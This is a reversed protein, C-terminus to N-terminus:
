IYYRVVDLAKAGKDSAIAVLLPSWNDMKLKPQGKYLTHEEELGRLLVVSQGLKYYNVLAVVM